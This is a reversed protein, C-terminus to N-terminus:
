APTSHLCIKLWAVTSVCVCLRFAENGPRSWRRQWCRQRRGLGREGRDWRTTAMLKLGLSARHCILDGEGAGEEEEGGRGRRLSQRRQHVEDIAKSSAWRKREPSNNAASASVPSAKIVDFVIKFNISVVKKQWSGKVERERDKEWKTETEKKGIKEIIICGAAWAFQQNLTYVASPFHHILISDFHAWYVLSYLKSPRKTRIFM